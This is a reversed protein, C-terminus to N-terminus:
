RALEEILRAATKAGDNARYSAHIAAIRERTKGPRLLSSLAEWCQEPSVNELDIRLGTCSEEVFRANHFQDNCIPNVLMPVGFSLAEMVSNAGGHTVFASVRPLLALQPVYRVAFANEPLEGLLPSGALDSVSLVLQVNRGRVAEILTHFLSPQYYIQSGFSAYCIPQTRSLREWPFDCEDGRVGAPLSPGVLTVGPPPPGAFEETTFVINLRDSLCDCVRFSARQGFSAFLAAREDALWANTALLESQFRGPVIPNLSSSLAAWPVKELGAAIPAQYVMPDAAIVDPRFQRVIECLVPVQPPVCDVLLDKIWRRLSAADRVKEAFYKGRNLDSPQPCDQSGPFFTTFGACRLQESVDRVAYFAVEHGRYQLNRAPGLYPHIHGREPIIIFLVKM